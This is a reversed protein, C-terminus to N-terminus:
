ADLSRRAALLDALDELRDLEVVEEGPTTGMPAAEVPPPLDVVLDGTVGPPLARNRVVVDHHGPPVPAGEAAVVVLVDCSALRRVALQALLPPSLALLLSIRHTAV